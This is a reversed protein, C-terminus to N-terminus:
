KPSFSLTCVRLVWLITRYQEKEKIGAKVEGGKYDKLM